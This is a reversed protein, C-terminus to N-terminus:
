RIGRNGQLGGSHIFLIHSGSAIQNGEIMDFLAMMAKGTYLHDLEIGNAEQFEQCFRMLESDVRGFGGRHHQTSIFSNDLPPSYPQYYRLRKQMQNTVWQGKVASIGVLSVNSPMGLRLGAYFCGTGVATFVHTVGSARWDIQSLMSSAGMVGLYNDGGEPIVFGNGGLILREARSNRSIRYQARNIFEFKMGLEAAEQLMANSKVNLEDGRVIGLSPLGLGHCVHAMAHLHNSWAGGFSVILSAQQQQAVLLNYKLKFWKNGSIKAHLKDARLVSIKIRKSEASPHYISDITLQQLLGLEHLQASQQLQFEYDQLLPYFTNPYHHMTYFANYLFAQVRPNM